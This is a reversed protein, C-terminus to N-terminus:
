CSTEEMVSIEKEPGLVPSLLIAGLSWICLIGFVFIGASPILLFLWVCPLLVLLGLTGTLLTRPSFLRLVLGAAFITPLLLLLLVFPPLSFALFPIGLLSHIFALLLVGGLVIALAGALLTAGPRQNLTRASNWILSSFPLSLLLGSFSCGIWLWSLLRGRSIPGLWNELGERIVVPLRAVTEKVVDAESFVTGTATSALSDQQTHRFLDM